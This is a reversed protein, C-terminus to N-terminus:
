REFRISSEPASTFPQNLKKSLGMGSCAAGANAELRKHLTLLTKFSLERPEQNSASARQTVKSIAHAETRQTGRACVHSTPAYSALGKVGVRLGLAPAAQLPIPKDFFGELGKM